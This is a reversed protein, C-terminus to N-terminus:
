DLVKISEGLGIKLLLVSKTVFQFKTLGLSKLQNFNFYFQHMRTENELSDRFLRVMVRHQIGDMVGVLTCEDDFSHYAIKKLM